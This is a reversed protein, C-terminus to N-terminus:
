TVGKCKTVKMIRCTPQTRLKLELSLGKAAHGRGVGEKFCYSSDNWTLASNRRIM